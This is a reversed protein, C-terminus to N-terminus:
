RYQDAAATLDAPFLTAHDQLLHGKAGVAWELLGVSRELWAEAPAPQQQSAQQGTAVAAASTTSRTLIAAQFPLAASLLQALRTLLKCRLHEPCCGQLLSLWLWL